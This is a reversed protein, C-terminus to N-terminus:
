EIRYLRSPRPKLMRGVIGSRDPARVMSYDSYGAWGIDYSGAGEVAQYHDVQITINLLGAPFCPSLLALCTAAIPLVPIRAFRTTFRLSM